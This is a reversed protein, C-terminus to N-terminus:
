QDAPRWGIAEHSLLLPLGQRIPYVWQENQSVLLSEVPATVAVGRSTFWHGLNLHANFANVEEPRALRLSQHTLPCIFTDGVWTEFLLM